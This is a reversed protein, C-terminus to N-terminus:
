VDVLLKLSRVMVELRAGNGLRIVSREKHHVVHPLNDSEIVVEPFPFLRFIVNVPVDVAKGNIEIINTKEIISPHNPEDNTLM